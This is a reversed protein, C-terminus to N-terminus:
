NSKDLLFKAAFFVGAGIVLASLELGMNRIRIGTMLGSIIVVMGFVQLGRLFAYRM